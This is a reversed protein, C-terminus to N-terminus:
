LGFSQARTCQKGSGWLHSGLHSAIVPKVFNKPSATDWAEETMRTQPAQQAAGRDEADPRQTKRGLTSSGTPRVKLSSGWTSLMNAWPEKSTWLSRRNRSCRYCSDKWHKSGQSSMPRCRRMMAKQDASKTWHFGGYCRDTSRISSHKSQQSKAIHTWQTWGQRDPCRWAGVYLCLQSTAHQVGGAVEIWVQRGVGMGPIVEGVRRSNDRLPHSYRWSVPSWSSDHSPGSQCWKSVGQTWIPKLGEGLKLWMHGHDPICTSRWFDVQQAPNHSLQHGTNKWRAVTSRHVFSCCRVTPLDTCM